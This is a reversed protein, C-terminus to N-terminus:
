IERRLGGSFCDDRNRETVKAIYHIMNISIWINFWRQMELFFGVLDCNCYKSIHHILCPIKYLIKTCLITLLIM